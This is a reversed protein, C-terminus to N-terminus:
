NEFSFDGREFGITRVHASCRGSISAHTPAHASTARSLVAINIPHHEFLPRQPAASNGSIVNLARPIARTNTLSSKRVHKVSSIYNM